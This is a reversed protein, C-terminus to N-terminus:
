EPQGPNREYMQDAALEVNIQLAHLCVNTRGDCRAKNQSNKPRPQIRLPGDTRQQGTKHQTRYAKYKLDHVTRGATAELIGRNAPQDVNIEQVIRDQHEHDARQHQDHNGQHRRRRVALFKSAQGKGGDIFFHVQRLYRAWNHVLRRRFSRQFM